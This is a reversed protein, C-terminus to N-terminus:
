VGENKARSSSTDQNVQDQMGRTETTTTKGERQKSESHRTIKTEDEKERTSTKIKSDSGVAQVISKIYGVCCNIKRQNQIHNQEKKPVPQEAYTLSEM